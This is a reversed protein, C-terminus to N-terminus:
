SQLFGWMKREDARGLPGSGREDHTRAELANDLAM